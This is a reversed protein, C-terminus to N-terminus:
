SRPIANLNAVLETTLQKVPLPFKAAYTLLRKSDLPHLNLEDTPVPSGEQRLLYIWDLLAKEPEAVLYNGYRTQKTLYGWFLKRSLRRFLISISKAHFEGPRSATVCTLLKPTQTSVGSDRLVSQLSLYADPRLIGILERYSFQETLRNIFIKKGLHEVIGREEQRVLAARVAVESIHFESALEDVRLVGSTRAKEKITKVWDVV